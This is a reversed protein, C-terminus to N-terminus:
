HSLDKWMTPHISGLYEFEGNGKPQIVVVTGEPKVFYGFLDFLNPAHALVVRNSGPAVPTSLLRRTTEIIPKKETTTLNSTYMLNNEVKPLDGFALKGTERARCMPSVLIEAIPVKAKRIAEGVFAAVKRGVDNLPRQTSCDNLDVSPVRDPKTNDTNGHRMYLVFGGKRVENLLSKTALKETFNPDSQGAQAWAPTVPLGAFLAVTLTSLLSSRLPM